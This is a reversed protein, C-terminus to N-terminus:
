VIVGLPKAYGCGNCVLAVDEAIGGFNVHWLGDLIYSADSPPLGSNITSVGAASENRRNPGAQWIFKLVHPLISRPVRMFKLVLKALPPPPIKVHRVGRPTACTICTSQVVGIEGSHFRDYAEALLMANPSFFCGKFRISKLAVHSYGYNSLAVFRFYRASIPKKLYAIQEHKEPEAQGEAVAIFKEDEHAELKFCKVQAGAWKGTSPNHQTLGIQSLQVVTGFDFLISGKAGDHRGSHWVKDSDDLINQAEHAADWAGTRYHSTRQTWRRDNMLWSHKM